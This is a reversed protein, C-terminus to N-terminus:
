RNAFKFNAVAVENNPPIYFGVKDQTFDRGISAVSGLEVWNDGNAKVRASVTGPKVAM